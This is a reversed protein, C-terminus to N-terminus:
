QRPINCCCCMTLERLNGAYTCATCTWRDAVNLVNCKSCRKQEVPNLTDCSFCFIQGISKYLQECFHKDTVLEDLVKHFDPDKVLEDLTKDSM